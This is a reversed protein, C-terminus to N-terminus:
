RRNRLIKWPLPILGAVRQRYRPYDDPFQRCLRAEEIRSGIILYLSLALASVLMMLDMNRSWILLLGAFYWPHRVFRHIPSIVFQAGHEPSVRRERWQRLGLFHGGDYHRMSLLLVVAALATMAASVYWWPGQWHILLEGRWRWMLYLPVLVSVTAFLNYALRYGPALDPYLQAVRQKLRDSALWSHLVFYILWLLALIGAQMGTGM